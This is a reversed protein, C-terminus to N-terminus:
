THKVEEWNEAFSCQQSLSLSVQQLFVDLCLSLCKENKIWQTNVICLEGSNIFHHVKIHRLKFRSVINAIKPKKNNKRKLRARACFCLTLSPESKGSTKRLFMSTFKCFRIRALCFSVSGLVCVALACCKLLYAFICILCCGVSAWVCSSRCLWLLVYHLLSWCFLDVPYSLTKVVQLMGFTEIYSKKM